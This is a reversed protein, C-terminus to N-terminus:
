SRTPCTWSVTANWDHFDSMIETEGAFVVVTELADQPETYFEAPRVCTGRDDESGAETDPDRTPAEAVPRSDDRGLLAGLRRQAHVVSPSGAFSWLFFALFLWSSTSRRRIATSFM